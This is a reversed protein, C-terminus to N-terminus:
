PHNKGEHNLVESGPTLKVSTGPSAWDLWNDIFILWHSHWARLNGPVRMNTLAGGHPVKCATSLQPRSSPTNFWWVTSYVVLTQSSSVRFLFNRHLIICKKENQFVEPSLAARMLCYLITGYAKWGSKKFTLTLCSCTGNKSCATLMWATSNDLGYVKGSNGAPGMLTKATALLGTWSGTHCKM